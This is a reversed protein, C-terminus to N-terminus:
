GNVAEGGNAQRELWADLSARRCRVSSGIRVIGPLGDAALLAYVKSRSIALYEAVEAPRMLAPATSREQPVLEVVNV